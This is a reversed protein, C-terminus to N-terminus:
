IESGDDLPASPNIPVTWIRRELMRNVVMAGERLCAVRDSVVQDAKTHRTQRRLHDLWTLSHFREVWRTPNDVDQHLTWRHAGNRRRIRGLDEMADVFAQFNEPLVRYEITVVIPGDGPEVPGQLDDLPKARTPTLDPAEEKTLPFFLTLLLSALMAMGSAVLATRIDSSSAVFGWFWSGLAMGAFISVQNLSMARGAVWRPAIFQVSVSLGTLAMVWAGGAVGMLAISLLLNSSLGLGIAALGFAVCCSKVLRDRGIPLAARILAGIVAGVGFGGLLLGFVAPGGSLADRALIATLAWVSSGCLGFTGARVLVAVLGPSLAVFRIGALIAQPVGEPPLVREQGVRKWTLLTLIIGLYSLANAAFAAAVGALAVLLGGIAPGLSRAVNFGVSNLSAAPEVHSLPVQDQLSAQWAPAHLATGSGILFTGALLIFPNTLSLMTLVTLGIAVLLMGFQAVLMITRREYIDALAGAPLSILMMPLTACTQVLAVMQADGTLATMMWAAAVTQILGGFNSVM